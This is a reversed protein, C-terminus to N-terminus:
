VRILSVLVPEALDTPKARQAWMLARARWGPDRRPQCAPGSMSAWALDSVTAWAKAMAMVRARVWGLDRAKASGPARARASRHRLAPVPVQDRPRLPLRFPHCTRDPAQGLALGTAAAWWQVRVPPALLDLLRHRRRPLARQGRGPIRPRPHIRGTASALPFRFPSRLLQHQRRPRLDCCCRAPTPEQPM